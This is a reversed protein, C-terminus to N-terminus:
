RAQYPMIHLQKNGEKDTYEVEVRLEKLNIAKLLYPKTAANEDFPLSFSTNEDVKFSKDDQDLAHLVLEVTSDMIGQARRPYGDLNGKKDFRYQTGKKNPKLDEIVWITDVSGTRNEREDLGAFKFRENMLPKVFKIVSGVGISELKMNNVKRGGKSELKFLSKEGGESVATPKLHVQITDVGIAKLKVVLEPFSAPDTPDTEAAYEDRNSFGDGDPDLDPSDSYGPDIGYEIWWTNSIGAHVPDSKLLDVPNKLDDRKAFLSVGTFLDVKRGDVDAQRIEHMAQMSEKASQMDVLGVVGTETNQKPQPLQFAEALNGKNKFGMAVLALTVAVAAGLTVKEYNKSLWSM